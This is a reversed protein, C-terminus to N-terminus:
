YSGDSIIMDSNVQEYPVEICYYDDKINKKGKM